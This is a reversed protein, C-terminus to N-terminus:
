LIMELLPSQIVCNPRKLVKQMRLAIQQQLLGLRTLLNLLVIAEKMSKLLEKRLTLTM